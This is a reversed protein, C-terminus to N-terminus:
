AVAAVTHRHADECSSLKVTMEPLNGCEGLWLSDSGRTLLWALMRTGTSMAYRGHVSLFCHLVLLATLPPICAIGVAHISSLIHPLMSSMGVATAAAALYVTGCLRASGASRM